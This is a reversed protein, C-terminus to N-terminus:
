YSAVLGPDANAVHSARSAGAGALHRRAAQEDLVRIGRTVVYEFGARLEGVLALPGATVIQQVLDAHVRVRGVLPQAVAEVLLAQHALLQGLQGAM